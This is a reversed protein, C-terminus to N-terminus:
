GGAHDPMETELSWANKHLLASSWSGARRELMPLTRNHMARKSCAHQDQESLIAILRWEQNSHVQIYYRVKAHQSHGIRASGKLLPHQRSLQEISLSARKRVGEEIQSLSVGQKGLRVLDDELVDKHVRLSTKAGISLGRLVGLLGLMKSNTERSRVVATQKLESLRLEEKCADLEGELKYSHDVEELAVEEAEKLGKKSLRVRSRLSDREVKLAHMRKRAASLEGNHRLREEDSKAERGELSHVENESRQLETEKGELAHKVQRAELTKRVLLFIYVITGLTMIAAFLANYFAFRKGTNEVRSTPNLSLVDSVHSWLENCVNSWFEPSANSSNWPVQDVAILQALLHGNGDHVIIPAWRNREPDSLIVPTIGARTAVVLQGTSDLLMADFDYFTRRLASRIAERAENPPLQLCERVFPEAWARVIAVDQNHVHVRERANFGEQYFLDCRNGVALAFSFSVSVTVVWFLISHLRKRWM